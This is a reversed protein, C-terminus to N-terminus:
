EKAGPGPFEWDHDEYARIVLWWPAQHAALALAKCFSREDVSMVRALRLLEFVAGARGDNSQFAGHGILTAYLEKTPCTHIGLYVAANELRKTNAPDRAPEEPHKVIAPSVHTAKSLCAYFSGDSACRARAQALLAIVTEQGTANAERAHCNTITSIANGLEREMMRVMDPRPVGPLPTADEKKCMDQEMREIAAARWDLPNEPPVKAPQAKPKAPAIKVWHGLPPLCSHLRAHVDFVTAQKRSVWTRMEASYYRWTGNHPVNGERILYTAPPSWAKLDLDFGEAHLRDPLDPTNPVNDIYAGESSDLRFAYAGTFIDIGRKDSLWDAVGDGFLNLHVTANRDDYYTSDVTLVYPSKPPTNM